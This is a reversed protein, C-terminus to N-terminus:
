SGRQARLLEHLHLITETQRDLQAILQAIHAVAVHVLRRMGALECQLDRAANCLDDDTLMLLDVSELHFVLEPRWRIEDVHLEVRADIMRADETM